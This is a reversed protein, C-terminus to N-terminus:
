HRGMPPPNRSPAPSQTCPRHGFDLHMDPPANFGAIKRTKQGPVEFNSEGFGIRAFGVRGFGALANTLIVGM